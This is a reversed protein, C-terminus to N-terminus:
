WSLRDTEAKSTEDDEGTQPWGSGHRLQYLEYSYAQGNETSCDYISSASLVLKYDGSVYLNGRVIVWDVQREDLITYQSDYFRYARSSVFEPTEPLTSAALYFGGDAFGYSLLSGGGNEQMYQAFKTQALGAGSYGILPLNENIACGYGACVAAAGALLLAYLQRKEWARKALLALPGANLPVFAAVAMPSFRFRENSAYALMATCAFAICVATCAANWRRQALRRLLYGAGCFLAVGAPLNHILGSLLALLAGRVPYASIIRNELHNLGFYLNWLGDLAGNAGFYILWPLASVAAGALYETCLLAARKLGRERVAADVALVVIFALHVGLLECKLWLVCGALFGHLVVRRAPMRRNPNRLYLLLDCLAWAQLPLAFEEVTDGYIFARSSVVLLCALAACYMSLASRDSIRAALKWSFYLLDTLAAIEILWVGFFSSGSVCAALAHLAYVLPGAELKLDRYPVKGALMGRGVTFFANAEGWNNTPYLPSCRSFILLLVVAILASVALMCRNEKAKLM